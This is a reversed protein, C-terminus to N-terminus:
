TDRCGTTDAGNAGPTTDVGRTLLAALISLATLACWLATSPLPLLSTALLPALATAVGVFLQNRALYSGRERDPPLSTLMVLAAQSVAMEGLTYVAM